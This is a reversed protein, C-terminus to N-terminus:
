DDRLVHLSLIKGKSTAYPERRAVRVTDGQRWVEAMLRNRPESGLGDLVASVVAREDVEGIRPSVVVNVKPLGGDEEEVLQYDTPSGGFRAPLVEEIVRILDSGLFHNGESTLKEYSRITHLHLDLGLEGFPCGCDRRELVAYDDSEVNIMLKSSSATLTTHHLAGVKAGTGDVARGRQLVAVRDALIHVDDVVTPAGCAVGIRGTETMTYHCVARCGAAAIVRAKGETFPEGGFRFFSGSIDLGEDGAAICVRVGLAAQTDLVGPRGERKTEALWRAVRVAEEPACYDPAPLGAGALRVARVTYATVFWFKLAELNPPAKYPNFWHAVPEGVKVQRLCNNLGSSSPPIVRWVAYPRGWLDFATRFVSHYSTEQELRDLDVSVRRARSRSGGTESALHPTLLPNEFRTEDAPLSVGPREIPQRGKFEDLTVHVGADFLRELAGELGLGEVLRTVDPLEIGAAELMLRYPNHPNRYVARDLVTLFSQERRQLQAAIRHRAQEPTV